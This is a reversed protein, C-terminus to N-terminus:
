KKWLRLISGLGKDADDDKPQNMVAEYERKAKAQEAETQKRSQELLSIKRSIDEVDKDKVVPNKLGRLVEKARDKSHEAVILESTTFNDYPRKGSRRNAM